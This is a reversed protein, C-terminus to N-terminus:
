RRKKARMPRQSIEYKPVPKRKTFVVAEEKEPEPGPTLEQETEVGLKEETEEVVPEADKEHHFGFGLGSEFIESM